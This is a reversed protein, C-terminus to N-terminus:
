AEAYLGGRGREGGWWSGHGGCDGCVCGDEDDAAAGGAGVGGGGEGALAQVDSEELGGGERAVVDALAHERAHAVEEPEDVKIVLKIRIAEHPLIPRRKLQTLPLPHATLGETEKERENRKQTQLLFACISM